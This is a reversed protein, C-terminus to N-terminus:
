YAEKTYYGFHGKIVEVIQNYWVIYTRGTEDEYVNRRVNKRSGTLYVEYQGHNIAHKM